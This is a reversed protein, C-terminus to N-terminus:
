LAAFTTLEIEREAIAARVRPDTLTALEIPRERAYSSRADLDTDSEGPHCGLETVGDPLADLIALLSDVDIRGDHQFRRVYADPTRVGSARMRDRIAPTLSRAAAGTERALEIVADLVAPAEEVWHHTDLHSPARGLIERGRAYQARLERLVDETMVRGAGIVERARLFTGDPRVLSGVTAPDSLPRGYTLVLHIGVDLAPTERALVAAEATALANTMLTASTVIGDRHARLIGANVGRAYGLDDGNVILRTV